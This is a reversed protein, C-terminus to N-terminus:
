NSKLYILDEVTTIKINDYSGDILKVRGNIREVLSSDDTGVFEEEHATEYAEKLNCSINYMRKGDTIPIMINEYM